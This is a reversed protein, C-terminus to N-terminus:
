FWFKWGRVMKQALVARYTDSRNRFWITPKRMVWSLNYGHYVSKGVRISARESTIQLCSIVLTASILWTILFSVPRVCVTSYLCLLHSSAPFKPNLFYLFQVIWTAFVFTHDAECNSRLQDAGKNECICFTPKRM